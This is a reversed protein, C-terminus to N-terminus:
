EDAFREQYYPCFEAVECYSQCRKPTGERYEKKYNGFGYKSNAWDEAKKEDKFLKTARKSYGVKTKLPRHIAWKDPDQWRNEQSCARTDNNEHVKLRKDIYEEINDMIDHELTLVRPPYNDEKNYRWKSWDRFMLINGIKEIDYKNRCLWKYINLQKEWKPYNTKYFYSNVSTFKYDWLAKKKTDLLDFSGNITWGNREEFIREEIIDDAGVGKEMILHFASGVLMWLSDAVETEIEDRHKNRLNRIHPDDILTTVSINKERNKGTYEENIKILARKFTEPLGAKNTYKM